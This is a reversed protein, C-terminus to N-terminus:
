RPLSETSGTLMSLPRSNRKNDRPVGDTSDREGYSKGVSNPKRLNVKPAAMMTQFNGSSNSPVSSSMLQTQSSDGLSEYINECSGLSERSGRLSERSSRLTCDSLGKPLSTVIRDSMDETILGENFLHEEYETLNLDRVNARFAAAAPSYLPASPKGAYSRRRCMYDNFSSYPTTFDSNWMPTDGVVGTVTHSHPRVFPDDNTRLQNLRQKLFCQRQQLLDCAERCRTRVKQCKELLNPKQLDEALSIMTTINEDSVPPQEKMYLELSSLLKEVEEVSSSEDKNNRIYKMTGYAWKYCQLYFPFHIVEM